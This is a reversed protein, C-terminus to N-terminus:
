PMANEFLFNINKPGSTGQPNHVCAFYVSYEPTAQAGVTHSFAKYQLRITAAYAAGAICTAALMAAAFRIAKM